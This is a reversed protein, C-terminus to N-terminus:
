NAQEEAEIARFRPMIGIKDPTHVPLQYIDHGPFQNGEVLCPGDPTFCVDWGVYGVQPIVQAAEQVLARAKDWDPFTFGKIPTGTAPHNEYLNKQKDLARDIVVGKEPDMPAVMGGSNFNDVFKGNGIRFMATVLYVRGTKSRITVMRVTNISGPYIAAVAPHQVILEELELQPAKPLLHDYLADLSPFDGTNLKEIGWGCSGCSPKAMFADHRALFALVAEKNEGTVPVWDRHLFPAFRTNFKIKDGLEDMFAKDNYKVVLANNRGRTLYTDRQADTLAYMEFLDYDMYGAGYKVACDKMDRFIALRGMGTKKHISNIKDVMAKYNMNLVRQVLYKVNAM